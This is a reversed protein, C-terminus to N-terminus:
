VIKESLGKAHNTLSNNYLLSKELAVDYNSTSHNLFYSAM